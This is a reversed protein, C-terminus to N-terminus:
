SAQSVTSMNFDRVRVPPMVTHTFYDNWERCLTLEARGAESIRSLLDVPSENFRFNNVRGVVRGNEILYVGDRTLGTLLLTQPDVERIYWLCTLLLGRQTRAIMDTLDATGGADMILNATPFAFPLGARTAEATSAILRRLVGDAIWDTAELDVGNDFVSTEGAMTAHVIAFPAQEIGEREPDSRLTLPVTSIRHGIKTGGGPESWATRGELANKASMEWYAYIMLDAVAGPPLLTDYRGAPLDIVVDGWDLRQQLDASHGALDVDSFDATYQGVWASNVSTGTGRKANIEVRGMPQVHRRRMGTSSALWTTTMTHEAFGYLRDGRGAFDAVMTGLERAFGSLTEISTPEADGFFEGDLSEGILDAAENSPEGGAASEWAARVLDDIQSGDALPGAVTGSARGGAVDTILTVTMTRHHMQGNTTLSNNAWRLNAETVEDVIVICDADPALDQAAALAQDIWSPVNM